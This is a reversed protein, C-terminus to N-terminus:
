RTASRSLVKTFHAAVQEAARKSATGDYFDFHPDATWILRKDSTAIREFFARANAPLAANDSHIVLSPVRIRAAADLPSFDLWKEWSMVAFKNTWPLIYGRSADFYYEMPGSHSATPDGPKNSYALLYEVYGEDRYRAAAQHGAERRARVGEEGGYLALSAEPSGVHLAVGAYVKIRSDEAVAVGMYAGGTCVGLGGIRQLDVAPHKELFSIASRIDAVHEDPSVYQRPEGSSDGFYRFDFALAAFGQDELRQAYLRSMQEKVSTMSGVVVIGPLRAGPRYDSPVYLDGVLVEGDSPFSVRNVGPRPEAAEDRPPKDPTQM